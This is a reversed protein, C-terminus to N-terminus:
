DSVWTNAKTRVLEKEGSMGRYRLRAAQDESYYQKPPKEVYKRRVFSIKTTEDGWAEVETKLDIGLRRIRGAPFMELRMPPSQKSQGLTSSNTWVTEDEIATRSTAGHTEELGAM